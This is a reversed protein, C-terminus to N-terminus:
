KLLKGNKLQIDASATGSANLVNLYYPGGSPSLWCTTQTALYTSSYGPYRMYSVTNCNDLYSDGNVSISGNQGNVPHTMDGACSSISYTKAGTGLDSMIVGLPYSTSSPTFRIAIGNGAPISRIFVATSSTYNTWDETSFNGPTAGCGGTALPASCSLPGSVPNVGSCTWDFPGSGTVASATNGAACLNTTPASSVAVNNATGCAAAVTQHATCTGSPAGGALGQCTWTYDGGAAPVTVTSSTGASCAAAGSPTSATNGGNASGCAGPTSQQAVACQSSAAGGNPGACTWRFEYTPSTTATVTSATGIGCLNTTPTSSQAAGGHM